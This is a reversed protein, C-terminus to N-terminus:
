NKLIPHECLLFMHKAVRHQVLGQFDSYLSKARLNGEESLSNILFKKIYSLNAAKWPSEKTCEIHIKAKEIKRPFYSKWYEVM